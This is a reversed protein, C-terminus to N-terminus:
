VPVVWAQPPLLVAQGTLPIPHFALLIELDSSLRLVGATHPSYFFASFVGLCSQRLYLVM